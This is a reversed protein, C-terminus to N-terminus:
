LQAKMSVFLHQMHSGASPISNGHNFFFGFAWDLRDPMVVPDAKGLPIRAGVGLHIGTAEAAVAAKTEM